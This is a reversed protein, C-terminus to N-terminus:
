GGGLDVRVSVRKGAVFSTPAHCFTHKLVNLFHPVFRILQCLVATGSFRLNDAQDNFINGIWEKGIDCPKNLGLGVAPPVTDAVAAGIVLGILGCLENLKKAIPM